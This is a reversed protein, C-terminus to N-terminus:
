LESGCVTNIGFFALLRTGNRAAADEDVFTFPKGGGVANRWPQRTHLEEWLSAVQAARVGLIASLMRVIAPPNQQLCCNGASSHVEINTVVASLM